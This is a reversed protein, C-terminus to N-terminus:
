HTERGGVDPVVPSANNMQEGKAGSIYPLQIATPDQLGDADPVSMISTIGGTITEGVLDAVIACRLFTIGSADTDSDNLRCWLAL